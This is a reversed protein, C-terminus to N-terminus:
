AQSITIRIKIGELNQLVGPGHHIPDLDRQAEPVREPIVVFVPSEGVAPRVDDQHAEVDSPYPRQFVAPLHPVM